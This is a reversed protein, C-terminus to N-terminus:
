RRVDTGGATDPRSGNRGLRRDREAQTDQDVVWAEEQAKPNRQGFGTGRIPESLEGWGWGVGDNKAETIAPSM